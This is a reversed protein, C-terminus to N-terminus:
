SQANSILAEAVDNNIIDAIEDTIVGQSVLKSISDNLTTVVESAFKLIAQKDLLQGMSGELKHCSNVTRDITEVLKSITHSNLILDTTDQCANLREELLLRLVGIEDRISKVENSSGFEAVRHQWKALRYNRLKIKEDTHQTDHLKCYKHGEVSVFNCQGHQGIAQCRNPDAPDTVRVLGEM